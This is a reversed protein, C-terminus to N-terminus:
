IRLGYARLGLDLYTPLLPGTTELVYVQRAGLAKLKAM